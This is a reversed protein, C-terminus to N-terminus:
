RFRAPVARVDRGRRSRRACGVQGAPRRQSVAHPIAAAAAFPPRWSARSTAFFMFPSSANFEQGQFLMPTNPGLLLLATMARWRGPSTLAHGRLGRASNAIQDHNQLFTVLSPHTV